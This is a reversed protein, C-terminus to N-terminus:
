STSASPLKLAFLQHQSGVPSGEAFYVLGNAITADGFVGSPAVTNFLPHCVVPTGACGTTGNADFATLGGATSYLVDNAVIPGGDISGGGAYTRIPTCVRPSGSCDATGTADYANIGGTGDIYLTGRAIASSGTVGAASWLATCTKPTRSCGSAGTADFAYLVDTTSNVAYVTGASVATTVAVTHGSGLSASWLPVCATPTGSCGTHGAGDFAYLTDATAIYLVGNAYTPSGSSTLSDSPNPLEVRLPSCVKPSGSCNTVGAADYVTVVDRGSGGTVYV